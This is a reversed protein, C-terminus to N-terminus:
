MGTLPQNMGVVFLFSNRVVVLASGLGVTIETEIAPPSPNPNEQQRRWEAMQDTFNIPM